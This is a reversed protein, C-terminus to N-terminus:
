EALKRLEEESLKKLAEDELDKLDHLMLLCDKLNQVDERSHSYSITRENVIKIVRGVAALGRRRLEDISLEAPPTEAEPQTPSPDAKIYQGNEDKVSTPLLPNIIKRTM